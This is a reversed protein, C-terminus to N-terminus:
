EGENKEETPRVYGIWELIEKNLEFYALADKTRGQQLLEWFEDEVRYAIIDREDESM